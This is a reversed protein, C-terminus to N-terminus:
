NNIFIFHMFTILTPPSISCLNKIFMIMIIQNSCFYGREGLNVGGRGDIGHRGEGCGDDHGYGVNKVKFKEM